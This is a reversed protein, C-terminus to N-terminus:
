EAAALKEIEWGTAPDVQIGLDEDNHTYFIFGQCMEDVTQPGYTITKTADPNYPNFASNDFHAITQIRTGEPLFKVGDDVYYTLQWDFNYNPLSLLTEREGGPMHAYFTMDRGRLHM